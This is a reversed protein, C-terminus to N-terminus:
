AGKKPKRTRQKAPAKAPAAASEEAPDPEAQAQGGGPTSTTPTIKLNLAKERAQDAAIQEDVEEATYGREAIVTSRAKFGNMVDLADAKVDDVPNTYEWKPMLHNVPLYAEVTRAAGRPLAIDGKLLALQLWAAWIPRLAQFALTGNGWREVARRLPQRGIRASSFNMNKTDGSVEGYPLGVAACQKAIFRREFDDFNSGPDPPSSFEIEEDEDLEYLIGTELKYERGGDASADKPDKPDEGGAGVRKVTGIYKASQAARELLADEYEELKFSPVLAGCLQSYGRIQGARRVRFIHLIEDAPIRVLMKADTVLKTGDGPHERYFHYAVRKNRKDFEVGLRIEHGEALVHGEAALNSYPLQESEITMLQLGVDPDIMKRVFVEGAEFEEDAWLAQLGYFDTLGYYDAQDTWAKFAKHLAKRVAPTEHLSVTTWGSGVAYDTWVRKMSPAYSGERVLFRVRARLTPGAQAIVSNLHQRSQEFLASRRGGRSGRPSGDAQMSAGPNAFARVRDWITAKAM